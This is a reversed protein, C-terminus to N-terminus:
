FEAVLSRLLYHLIHLFHPTPFQDTCSSVFMKWIFQCAICFNRYSTAQGQLRTHTEGLHFSCFFASQNLHPYHPPILHQAFIHYPHYIQRWRSSRHYIWMLYFATTRQKQRPTANGRSMSRPTTSSSNQSIEREIFHSASLM